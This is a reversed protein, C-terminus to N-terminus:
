KRSKPTMHAPMNLKNNIRVKCWSNKRRSERSIRGKLFDVNGFGLEIKLEDAPAIEKRILHPSIEM